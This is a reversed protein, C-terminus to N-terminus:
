PIRVEPEITTDVLSTLKTNLHKQVLIQKTKPQLNCSFTQSIKQSFIQKHVTSNRVAQVVHASVKYAFARDTTLNNAM